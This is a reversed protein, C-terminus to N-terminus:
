LCFVTYAIRMLAQLESTHRGHKVAKGGFGGGSELKSIARGHHSATARQLEDATPGSELFAAIEEDLRKAVHAPDVGPKVDAQVLVIGADEFPSAGASVSVAVPNKRVLANDLRSSSLGGLVSMAMQLPVSVADNLGPMTWM